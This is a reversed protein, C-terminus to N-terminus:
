LQTNVTSKGAIYRRNDDGSVHWVRTPPIQIGSFGLVSYAARPIKHVVLLQVAGLSDSM